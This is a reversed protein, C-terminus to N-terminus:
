GTAGTGIKPMLYRVCGDLTGLAPFDEEPIAIKFREQLALAFNLYDVSDFDFQDRFRQNPNLNEFDGEPAVQRIIQILAERLQEENM